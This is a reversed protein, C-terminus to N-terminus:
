VGLAIDNIDLQSTQQQPIIKVLQYGKSDAFAKLNEDNNFWVSDERAQNAQGYGYAMVVFITSIALLVMSLAGINLKKEKVEM